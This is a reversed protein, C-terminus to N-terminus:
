GTKYRMGLIVVAIISILIIGIIIAIIIISRKRKKSSSKIYEKIFNNIEAIISNKHDLKKIIECIKNIEIAQEATLTDANSFNQTLARIMGEHCRVDYFYSNSLEQYESYAKDYYGASLLTEANKFQRDIEAENDSMIYVSQANINKVNYNNIAKEVIYATGCFPCVAAEKSSDVELNAGCNTCQAKTLM